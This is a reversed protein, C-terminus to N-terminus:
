KAILWSMIKEDKAISFGGAHQDKYGRKLFYQKDKIDLLLIKDIEKKSLGQKEYIDYMKNYIEKITESGYYSDDEGTVLYVPTKAKTIKDINGTFKSSVHLFRSFLDPRKGVALSGTEGGGSFGELYVKKKDINYNKIFYEALAITQNASTDGWDNLQPALIIMDQKYKRAEVGFDEQIINVGV